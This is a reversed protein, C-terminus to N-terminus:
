VVQRVNKKYSSFYILYADSDGIDGNYVFRIDKKEEPPRTKLLENYEEVSM